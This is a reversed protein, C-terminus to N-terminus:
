QDNLANIVEAIIWRFGNVEVDKVVTNKTFSDYTIDPEANDRIHKLYAILDKNTLKTM